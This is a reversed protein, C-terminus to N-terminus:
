KLTLNSSPLTPMEEFVKRVFNNMLASEAKKRFLMNVFEAAETPWYDEPNSEKSNEETILSDNEKLHAKIAEEDYAVLAGYRISLFGGKPIVKYEKKDAMHIYKNKNSDYAYFEDDTPVPIIFLKLGRKKLLQHVQFPEFGSERITNLPLYGLAKTKGVQALDKMEPHSFFDYTPKTPTFLPKSTSLPEDDSSKTTLKNQKGSSKKKFLEKLSKM